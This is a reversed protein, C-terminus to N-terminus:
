KGPETPEAGDEIPPGGGGAGGFDASPVVLTDLDECYCADFFGDVGEGPGGGLLRATGEFNKGAEVYLVTLSGYSPDDPTGTFGDLPWSSGESTESNFYYSSASIRAGDSGSEGLPYVTIDGSGPDEWDSIEIFAAAETYTGATIESIVDGCSDASQTILVSATNMSSDWRWAATTFTIPPGGDTWDRISGSASSSGSFSESCAATIEFDDPVGTDDIPGGDMDMPGGDLDAGEEICFGTPDCFLEGPCDTDTECPLPEGGGGTEGGVEGGVEGGGTEGGGTEGSGTEGGVEGGGTTSGGAGTTGGDTGGSDTTGADTTGGTTGDPTGDDGDADDNGDEDGEADIPYCNGDDARAYGGGCTDEKECGASLTMLGAALLLTSKM